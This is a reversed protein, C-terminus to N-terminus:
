SRLRFQIPIEITISQPPKPVKGSLTSITKVAARDLVTRSSSKKIRITGIDGNKLLEFVVVVRGEIHRKRARKPYYLHHRLLQSIAHLHEELYDEQMSKQSPKAIAAPLATAHKTAVAEPYEQRSQSATPLVHEQVATVEKEKLLEQQLVRKSEITPMPQAVRKLAKKQSIKPEKKSIEKPVAPPPKSRSSALPQLPVTKPPLVAEKPIEQLSEKPAPLPAAEKVQTLCLCVRHEKHEKPSAIYMQYIVWAGALLAGHMMVSVLLSTSHRLM